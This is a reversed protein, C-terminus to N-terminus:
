DDEEDDPDKDSHKGWNGKHEKPDDHTYRGDDPYIEDACDSAENANTNKNPDETNTM